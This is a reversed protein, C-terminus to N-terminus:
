KCKRAGHCIPLLLGQNSPIDSFLQDGTVAVCAAVSQKGGFMITRKYKPFFELVSGSPTFSQFHFLKVFKIYIEIRFEFTQALFNVAFCEFENENINNRHSEKKQSEDM